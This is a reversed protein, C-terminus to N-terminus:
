LKIVEQTDKIAAQIPIMAKNIEQKDGKKFLYRWKELALLRENTENKIDIENERHRLIQM